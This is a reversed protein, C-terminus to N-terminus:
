SVWCARWKTTVANFQLHTTIMKGGGSPTSLPCSVNASNETNLLAFSRQTGNDTIRVTLFQGDVAGATNVAFLGTSSLGTYTFIDTTVPITAVTTTILNSQGSIYWTGPSGGANCIWIQGSTTTIWDGALFTGSAPPGGSTSGVWRMAATAGTLGAVKACFGIQFTGSGGRVAYTDFGTQGGPGLYLGADNLFGTTLAWSPQTDTNYNFGGLTVGTGGLNTPMTARIAGDAAVGTQWQYTPEFHHSYKLKSWIAEALMRHGDRGSLSNISDGWHLGGNSVGLTDAYFTMNLTTGAWSQKSLTLTNGSVSKVLTDTFLGSAYVLMGPAVGPFGGSSVTAQTSGTTVTVNLVTSRPSFDGGLEFLNVFTATPTAEAVAELADIVGQWYVPGQRGFIQYASASANTATCHQSMTFSTSSNVATVYSGVPFGAGVMQTGIAPSQPFGPNFGTGTVNSSGNTIGLSGLLSIGDGYHEGIMVIETTPSVAALTAAISTYASAIQTANLGESADNLGGFLYLRRYPQGNQSMVQAMAAWSAYQGGSITDEWVSVTTGGYALNDITVGDTPSNYYRAGIINVGGGGAGASHAGGTAYIGSAPFNTDGSDWVGIGGTTSHTSLSSSTPATGGVVTFTVNDGNNVTQYYVQVRRFPRTFTLTVTGSATAAKSLTMVPPTAGSIGYVMTNNAIGTGSVAMAQAVNTFTGSVITATTSGATLTVSAVTVAGGTNTCGDGIAQSSSFVWGTNFDPCSVGQTMISSFSLTAIGTGTPAANLVCSTGSVSVVYTNAALSGSGSAVTVIQGPVVGTFASATITTTAGLTVSAINFAAPAAGSGRAGWAGTNGACQIFGVGTDPLGNTRCEMNALNTAWDTIGRGSGVAAGISDGIVLDVIPNQISRNGTIIPLGARVSAAGAAGPRDEIDNTIGSGGDSSGSAATNWNTGDFVMLAGAGSPLSDADVAGTASVLGVANTSTNLVLQLQGAYFSSTGLTLTANTTSGTLEVISDTNLTTYPLTSTNKTTIPGHVQALNYDGSAPVVAGTRTDFSSVGSGSGANALEDAPVQGNEDLSAVGDPQGVSQVLVSTQNPFPTPLVKQCATVDVTGGPADHPLIIYYTNAPSGAVLETVEYASDIPETAPDNTAVLTISFTGSGNIAAQRLFVPQIPLGPQILPNTLQFQVAGGTAGAYTGTLTITTFSM